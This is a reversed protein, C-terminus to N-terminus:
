TFLRLAERVWEAILWLTEVAAIRKMWTARSSM